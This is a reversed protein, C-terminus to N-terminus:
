RWSAVMDKAENITTTNTNNTWVMISAGNGLPTLVKCFAATSQCTSGSLLDYTGLYIIDALNDSQMGTDTVGPAIFKAVYEKQNDTPPIYTRQSPYNITHGSFLGPLAIQTIPWNTYLSVQAGDPVRGISLLLSKNNIFKQCWAGHFGSTRMATETACQSVTVSGEYDCVMQNAFGDGSVNRHYGNHFPRDMWTAPCQPNNVATNCPNAVTCLNSFTMLTMPGVQGVTSIGNAKQFAVVASKTKPGFFGTADTELYGEAILLKQIAIVNPGRNGQKATHIEVSQASAKDGIFVKAKTPLTGSSTTKTDIETSTSLMNVPTVALAFAPLISFTFVLAGLINKKM